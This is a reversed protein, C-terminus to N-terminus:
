KRKRRPKTEAAEEEPTPYDPTEEGTGFELEQREHLTQIEHALKLHGRLDALVLTGTDTIQQDTMQNIIALKEANLFDVAAAFANSGAIQALAAGHAKQLEQLPTM